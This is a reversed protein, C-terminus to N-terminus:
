KQYGLAQMGAAAEHAIIFREHWNLRHRVSTRGVSVSLAVNEKIELGLWAELKRFNVDGRVLDEYKIHYLPFDTPLESWSLALRNWSRAFKAVSDILLEPHSYYVQDWKSDALSRYSDFPHRSVVVFLAWPYLWHLLSAETAGFRVEKFGWRTFGGRRAPEGLWRDFLGRLASRFDEAPPYLNAIWSSSLPRTSVDAQSQWLEWNRQSLSDSLMNSLRSLFVMEGLPEGWLLLHPDTILIRQLLTSGARWGTSLLFIPSEADRRVDFPQRALADLAALSQDLQIVNPGSIPKCRAWAWFERRCSKAERVLEGLGTQRAWSWLRSDKFRPTKVLDANAM